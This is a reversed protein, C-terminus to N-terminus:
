KKWINNVSGFTLKVYKEESNAVSHIIKILTTLFYRFM